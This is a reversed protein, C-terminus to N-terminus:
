GHGGGTFITVDRRAKFSQVASRFKLLFLDEAASVLVGALSRGHNQRRSRLLFFDAQVRQRSNRRPLKRKTTLGYKDTAWDGIM